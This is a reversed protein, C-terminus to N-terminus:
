RPDNNQLLESYKITTLLNSFNTNQWNQKFTKLDNFLDDVGNKLNYNLIEGFDETFKDFCVKYNRADNNAGTDNIKCEPFNAKTICALNELTSNGTELGVNYIKLGNINNKLIAKLALGADKVNIFPRWQWGGFLTITKEWRAKAYFLNGVLDFRIRESVGYLTSFRLIAVEKFKEKVKILKNEGNLKSVAYDSIPRPETKEDCLGDNIGYVSCSSAFIFKEVRHNISLDIIDNTAITNVLNTLKKNHSCAPDGVLGGLHVVVNIKYYKFIKNLAVTDIFNLKKIIFKNINKKEKILKLIQSKTEFLDLDIIVINNYDEFDLQNLLASGIYGLGGTILLNKM